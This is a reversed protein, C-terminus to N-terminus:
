ARSRRFGIAGVCALAAMAISAPEPIQPGPTITLRFDKKAIFAVTSTESTTLLSNNIVIEVKSAHQGPGLAAAINSALGLSWPGVIVTGPLSDSFSANVAPVNIPVIPLGNVATITARIIAGAFVATNVGGPGAISYDGAEFLQLGDITPGGPLTMVTFNLQGDTIDASGNSSTSMFSLPDFDLGINFPSPPGYLPVTDTGSSEIVDQFTIGPVNFTGYNISAGRAAAGLGLLVLAVCTTFRFSRACGFSNFIARILMM